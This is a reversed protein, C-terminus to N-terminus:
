LPAILAFFDSEIIIKRYERVKNLNEFIKCIIHYNEQSPDQMRERLIDPKLGRRDLM